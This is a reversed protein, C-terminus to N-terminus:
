EEEGLITGIVDGLDEEDEEDWQEQLLRIQEMRKQKWERLAQDTEMQDAAIPQISYFDKIETLTLAMFRALQNPTLDRVNLSDIAKALRNFSAGLVVKVKRRMEEAERIEALQAQERKHDDWANARDKWGVAGPIPNGQRDHGRYWNRWTGPSRRKTSVGKAGAKKGRYAQYAADLSRPPNQPLYFEWFRAYSTETDWPQREWLPVDEM